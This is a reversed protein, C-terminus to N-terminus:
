NKIIDDIKDIRDIAKVILPSDPYKEVLLKYGYRALEINADEYSYSKSFLKGPTALGNLEKKLGTLIFSANSSNKM